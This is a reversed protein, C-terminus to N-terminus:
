EGGPLLELFVRIRGGCVMGDEEADGPLMDVGVEDTRPGGARMMLLAKRIVDAEACGGGITGICRGDELIVMRTGLARPASGQRKVIVAMVKKMPEGVAAALERTFAGDSGQASKVSIIEAMISIAIEAPTEAGIKLGIPSYLGEIKEKEFGEEAMTQRVRASRSRSGVMGLYAYPKKLIARLCELDYRHGRTLVTFFTDTDGDIEDLADVFPKVMVRDAGAEAARNGFVPRDDMATVSFGLMKGLRVLHVGIHGCGCVVLKKGRGLVQSFVRTGDGLTLIGTGKALIEPAAEQLLSSECAATVGNELLIHRGAEPGDLVTALVNGCTPNLEKMLDFFCAM